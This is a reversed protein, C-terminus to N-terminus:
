QVLASTTVETDRLMGFILRRGGWGGAENGIDAFSVPWYGFVGLDPITIIEHTFARQVADHAINLAAFESENGSRQEFSRIILFSVPVMGTLGEGSAAQEFVTEPSYGILLMQKPEERIDTIHMRIAEIPNGSFFTIRNFLASGGPADTNLKLTASAKIANFLDNLYLYTAM